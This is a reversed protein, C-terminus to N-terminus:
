VVVGDVRCSEKTEIWLRAGCGLPKDPRYKIEAVVVGNHMIQVTNGKHTKGRTVVSVPPLRDAACVKVNGRIRNQDVHIRKLAM